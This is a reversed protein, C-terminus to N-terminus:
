RATGVAGALPPAPAPNARLGPVHPRLRAWGDRVRRGASQDPAWLGCVARDPQLRRRPHAASPSSRHRAPDTRGRLRTDPWRVAPCWGGLSGAAARYPARDGPAAPRASWADRGRAGAAGARRQVGAGGQPTPLPEVLRSRPLRPASRNCSLSVRLGADSHAAPLHPRGARAVRLLRAARAAGAGGGARRQPRRAARERHHGHNHGAAAVRPPQPAPAPRLAGRLGRRPRRAHAPALPEAPLAGRRASSAAAPLRLPPFRNGARATLRQEVTHAAGAAPGAAPRRVCPGAAAVAALSLPDYRSITRTPLRPRAIARVPTVDLGM